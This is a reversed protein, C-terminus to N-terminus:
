PSVVFVWSLHSDYNKGLTASFGIFHIRWVSIIGVNPAQLVTKSMRVVLQLIQTSPSVLGMIYM